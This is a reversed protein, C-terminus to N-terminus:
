VLDSSNKFTIIGSLSIYCGLDLIKKAFKLSGTFCHILVKLDSERIEDTLMNLTDDEASRTHVITPLNLIKAAKLHELFIRKQIEKKSNEYYYDLGTEGIGIIKKNKNYKNILVKSDLNVFKETEHPHIGLTGYINKYKEIIIKIKEFSSLNTSITLLYDVNNERARSIVGDLDKYLNEYDLHCHSDIIM